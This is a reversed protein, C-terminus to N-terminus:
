NYGHGDLKQPYREGGGGQLWRSGDLNKGNKVQGGEGWRSSTM